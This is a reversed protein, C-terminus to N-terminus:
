FWSFWSKNDSSVGKGVAEGVSQYGNEKLIGDLERKIRTVIPFGHYVFSSYIQVASAGALIKDYADKGSSIGGCGIIPIKGGTLKYADEIMKTSKERLPKGSLGGTEQQHQSYLVMSRDITTNAIILGDVKCDRRQVITCVDRLEKETLDPSLKLFIPKPFDLSRNMKTVQSLLDKLTEKQQMLRLGPTNPSSINIILYDATPAFLKLGDVYDKVADDSSKNKRFHKFM